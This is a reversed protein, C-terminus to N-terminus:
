NEAHGDAMGEVIGEVSSIIEDMIPGIEEVQLGVLELANDGIEVTIGDTDMGSWIAIQDAVHVIYTLESSRFPSPDHHYRVPISISKPFSWNECVRAAIEAHDFGLIKREARLFTENGDALFGSFEDKRELIYEDLILKGADHILGASFADDALSPCKSKAIIRSGVAVSLSHRWLSEAPLDYGLLSRGLLKSTCTVTLLEGVARLGLVVAAEQISSVKELRRYYASNSLRLVKIALAQDTEILDALEKLNLNPNRLISQARHM